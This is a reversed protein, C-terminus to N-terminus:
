CLKGEWFMLRFRLPSTWWQRNGNSSLSDPLLKGTIMELTGGPSFGADIRRCKAPTSVGAERRISKKRGLQTKGCGPFAMGENLGTGKVVNTQESNISAHMRAQHKLRLPPKACPAGPRYLELSDCRFKDSCVLTTLLFDNCTGQSRVATLVLSVL